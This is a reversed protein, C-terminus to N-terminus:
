FTALYGPLGLIQYAITTTGEFPIGEFRCLCCALIATQAWTGLYATICPWHLIPQVLSHSWSPCSPGITTPTAMHNAHASFLTPVNSWPHAWTESHHQVPHLSFNSHERHYPLTPSPNQLINIPRQLWHTYQWMPHSPSSFWHCTCPTPFPVIQAHYCSCTGHTWPSWFTPWIYVTLPSYVVTESNLINGCLYIIRYLLSTSGHFIICYELFSPLVKHRLTRKGVKCGVAGWESPVASGRVLVSTQRQWNVFRGFCAWVLFFIPQV